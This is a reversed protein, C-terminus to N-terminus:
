LNCVQCRPFDKTEILREAFQVLFTEMESESPSHMGSVPVINFDIASRHTLENSMTAELPGYVSAVVHANGFAWTASGAADCVSNLELYLNQKQM